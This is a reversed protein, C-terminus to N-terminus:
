HLIDQCQSDLPFRCFIYSGFISYTKCFLRAMDTYAIAVNFINHMYVCFDKWPAWGNFALYEFEQDSYELFCKRQVETLHLEKCIADFVIPNQEFNFLRDSQGKM